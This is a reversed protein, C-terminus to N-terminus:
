GAEIYARTIKLYQGDSVTVYANGEFNDNSVIDSVGGSLGSLVAYYGKKDTDAILNYEGAPIDIGVRYTGAIYKGDTAGIPEIQDAPAIKGHKVELYQGDSVEFLSFNDVNDNDVISSLDGSADSSVCYYGRRTGSTKFFYQGAEIDTGVKYMGDSHWSIDAGTDPTPTGVIDVKSTPESQSEKGIIDASLESLDISELIALIDSEFQEKTSDDASSVIGFMLGVLKNGKGIGYFITDLSKGSSEAYFRHEFGNYGNITIDKTSIAEYGDVSSLGIIYGNRFTSDSVDIESDFESINLSLLSTDKYSTVFVVNDANETKVWDNPVSLKVGKFESAEMSVPEDTPDPTPTATPEPTPTAEQVVSNEQTSSEANEGGCGALSTVAIGAALLLAFIQKAKMGM